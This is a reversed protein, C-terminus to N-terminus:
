TGKVIYNESDASLVFILPWPSWSDGNAQSWPTGWSTPHETGFCVCDQIFWSPQDGYRYLNSGPKGGPALSSRIWLRAGGLLHNQLVTFIWDDGSCAKAGSTISHGRWPASQSGGPGWPGPLCSGDVLTVSEAARLLRRWWGLAAWAELAIRLSLPATSTKGLAEMGYVEASLCLFGPPVAGLAVM